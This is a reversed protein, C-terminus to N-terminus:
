ARQEYSETNKIIQNMMAITEAPYKGVATEGSLMVHTAGDLVANAVDTVEARTPLRSETMSELMQTAVVVPKNQLRTRKVIEKQLVPVEYIPVCIGLDGRAVLIGDSEAIIEDLHEYASRNEIKSFIQCAPHKPKVIKKLAKVDAANRVFSQAIADLKNEIGIQVDRKDKATLGEFALEVGPINMGKREKLLGGVVVKMLLRKKEVKVVKLMIKGDDIYIFTDKKMRKLSGEYDFSVEKEGGSVKEQTLYLDHHPKLVIPAKLQGIRLRYGELDQMIKVARRMKQNLARVTKIRSLHDAHSGHSFNLRVMDLGNTIMKRLVTESKSAPGLTAIIKTRATM